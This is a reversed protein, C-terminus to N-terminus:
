RTTTWDLGFEDNIISVLNLMRKADDCDAFMPNDYLYTRYTRDVNTEFVYVVGDLGNVNCQVQSADPMTLLGADVLRRWAADWGSNPPRLEEAYKKFDPKKSMGHIYVGSWNGNTKRIVIGDMGFYSGEIWFRAEVDGAPLVSRLSSLNGIKALEDIGRFFIPEWNAQPVELRLQQGQSSNAPRGLESRASKCGGALWVAAAIAFMVLAASLRKAEDM